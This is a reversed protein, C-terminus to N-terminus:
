EFANLTVAEYHEADVEKETKLLFVAGIKICNQFCIDLSDNYM